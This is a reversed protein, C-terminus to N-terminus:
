GKMILEDLKAMVEQQKQINSGALRKVTKEYLGETTRLEAGTPLGSSTKQVETKGSPVIAKQKEQEANQKAM